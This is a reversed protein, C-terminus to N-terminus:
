ANPTGGKPGKTIPMLEEAGMGHWLSWRGYKKLSYHIKDIVINYNIAESTLHGCDDYVDIEGREVMERWARKEVIEDENFSMASFAIACTLIAITCVALISAATYKVFGNRALIACLFSAVGLTISVILLITYASM